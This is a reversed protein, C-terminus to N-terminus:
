DLITYLRDCDKESFVMPPKFKLINKYEGDLSIIIRNSRCYDLIFKAEKTAPTNDKRNKVFEIGGLLGWM